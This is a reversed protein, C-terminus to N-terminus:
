QNAEPFMVRKIKISRSTLASTISLRYDSLEKFRISHYRRLVRDGKLTKFFGSPLIDGCGVDIFIQMSFSKSCINSFRHKDLNINLVGWQSKNFSIHM